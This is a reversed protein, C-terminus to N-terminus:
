WTLMSTKLRAAAPLATAAPPLHEVASRPKGGGSDAAQHQQANKCWSSGISCHSRKSHAGIGLWVRLHLLVLLAAV